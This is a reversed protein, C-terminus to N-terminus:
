VHNPPPINHSRSPEVQVVARILPLWVRTSFFPTLSLHTAGAEFDDGDSNAGTM